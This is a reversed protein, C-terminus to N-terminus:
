TQVHDVTLTFVTGDAATLTGTAPATTTGTTTQGAPDTSRGSGLLDQGPGAWLAGAAVLTALGMGVGATRRRRVKRRGGEVVHTPAVYMQPAESAAQDILDLVDRDSMARRRWCFSACAPSAARPNRWRDTHLNSLVRRAYATPNGAALRHWRVYVRELAEQVRDEATVPDGTLMWATTLLRPSASEVFRVFEAEQTARM